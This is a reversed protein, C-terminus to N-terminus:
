DKLGWAARSKILPDDPKPRWPLSVRLMSPKHLVGAIAMFAKDHCSHGTSSDLLEGAKTVNRKFEESAGAYNCAAQAVSARQLGDNLAHVRALYDIVAIVELDSLIGEGILKPLAIDSITTPLRYLPAAAREIRIADVAARSINIEGLAAVLEDYREANRKRWNNFFPLVLAM